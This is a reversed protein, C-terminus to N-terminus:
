SGHIERKDKLIANAEKEGIVYIADKMKEINCSCQFTVSTPEFVRVADDPFYTQLFDMTNLALLKEPKIKKMKSQCVQWMLDRDESKKEPLQQLLFGAVKKENCAFMFQTPLQESQLFYFELANAISGKKIPVISQLPEVRNHQFITIVLHGNGLGKQLTKESANAKWDVLGRLHGQDNIQAVLMKIAGKSQFQITLRGNLKILAALMSATLLTEGLLKQITKPYPHQSLITQYSETLHAIEGRVDINELLFKQISDSQTM